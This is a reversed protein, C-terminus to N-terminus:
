KLLNVIGTKEFTAGDLFKGKVAYTYTDMICEKGGNDRGDWPANLNSTEYVVQGWRNMVIMKFDTGSINEGQVAFTQNRVDQANPSFVSPVFFQQFGRVDIMITSDSFCSGDSSAVRLRVTAMGLASFSYPYTTAASPNQTTTVGNQTISFSYVTGAGNTGASAAIFTIPANLFAVNPGAPTTNYTIKPDPPSVFNISVSDVLIGYCLNELYLKAQGLYGAPRQYYVVSATTTPNGSPADLLQGGQAGIRWTYNINQDGVKVSAIRVSGFTCLGVPLSDKTTIRPRSAPDVPSFFNIPVKVAKSKCLSRDRIMVYITDSQRDARWLNAFTRTASRQWTRGSDFSYRGTFGAPTPTWQVPDLATGVQYRVVSSDLRITVSQNRCIPTNAPTVNTFGPNFVYPYCTEYSVPYPSSTVSDGCLTYSVIRITGRTVPAGGCTVIPATTVGFRVTTRAIPLTPNARSITSGVQIRQSSAPCSFQPDPTFFAKYIAGRRNAQLAADDWSFNFEGSTTVQSFGATPVALATQTFLISAPNFQFETTSNLADDAEAQQFSRLLTLNSNPNNCTNAPNALFGMNSTRGCLQAVPTITPLRFTCVLTNSTGRGINPLGTTPPTEREKIRVVVYDGAGKFVRLKGYYAPTAVTDWLGVATVSINTNTVNVFQPDYRVIIDSTGPAIASPRSGAFQQLRLTVEVYDFQPSLVQSGLCQFRIQAVAATSAFLCVWGLVFFRLKSISM